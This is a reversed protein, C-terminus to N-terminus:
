NELKDICIKILNPEGVDGGKSIFKMNPALGGIIKGYAVLPVIEELIEVGKAEISRLIEVSVEGGCSFVGCFKNKSLILKTIEGLAKSIERTTNEKTTKKIKELPITTLLIYKYHEIGHSIKDIAIRIEEKKLKENMLLKPNVRVLFVEDQEVLLDVQNTTIPNISGVVMLINKLVPKINLSEMAYFMTFPGPDVSIIKLKSLAVGKAIRVIDKNLVADFIIVKSMQSYEKLLSAIHKEGKSVDELSIYKCQNKSQSSITEIVKSSQNKILEGDRLQIGNVTICGSEPYSPVVIAIRDELADLMGDIESGVNDRILFDIRKNYLQITSDKLKLTAEKVVRYSDERNFDKSSTSYAIVDMNFEKYDELNIITASKLGSKKFLSCTANAGTLDDAIIICKTM